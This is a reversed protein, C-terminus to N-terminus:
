GEDFATVFDILQEVANVLPTELDRYSSVADLVRGWFPGSALASGLQAIVGEKWPTGRPIEPWATIGIASPKIAQWIDVYPHGRILVAPDTVSRAIRLEKSGAVLHDLLIGLRRSPGPGFRDVAAALDDAGHLPEVVIGEVRLDDGWIKEILEADHLGEVWIRGARAVRARAPGADISGSATFAVPGRASATPTRLAVRIGNHLMAGDDVGFPRRRGSGDALVVHDGPSFEVVTGLFRTKRDVLRMGEVVEIIPYTVPTAPALIDAETWDDHRTM